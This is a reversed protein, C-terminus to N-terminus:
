KVSWRIDSAVRNGRRGQRRLRKRGQLRRRRRGEGRDAQAKLSAEDGMITVIFDASRPSPTSRTAARSTPLRRRRPRGERDAHHQPRCRAGANVNGYNGNSHGGPGIISVALTQGPGHRPGGLLLAAAPAFSRVSTSCTPAEKSSCKMMTRNGMPGVNARRLGFFRGRIARPSCFGRPSLFRYRAEVGNGPIGWEYPTAAAVAPTRASTPTSPRCASQPPSTTMSRLWADPVKDIVDLDQLRRPRGSRRCPSTTTTRVSTPPDRGSSNMSVRRTAPRLGHKWCKRM